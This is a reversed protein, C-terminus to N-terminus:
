PAVHWAFPADAPISGVTRRALTSLDTVYVDVSAPSPDSFRGNVGGDSFFSPM